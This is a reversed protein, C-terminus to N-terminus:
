RLARCGQRAKHDPWCRLKHRAYIEAPVESLVGTCHRTLAISESVAMRAAALSAFGKAVLLHVAGCFLYFDNRKWRARRMKKGLSFPPRMGRAFGARLAGDPVEPRDLAAGAGEGM